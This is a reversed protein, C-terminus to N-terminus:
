LERPDAASPSVRFYVNLKNREGVGLIRKTGKATKYATTALARGFHNDTGPEPAWLAEKLCMPGQPTACTGGFGFIYLKGAGTVNNVNTAPDTVVLENKGDGDVDDILMRVGYLASPQDATLPPIKEAAGPNSVDIDRYYRVVGPASGPASEATVLDLKGNGDVDGVAITIPPQDSTHEPHITVTGAGGCQTQSETIDGSDFVFITPVNADDRATVILQNESGGKIPALAANKFGLAFSTTFNPRLLRCTKTTGTVGNV